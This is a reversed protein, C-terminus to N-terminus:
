WNGDGYDEDPHLLSDIVVLVALILLYPVLFLWGLFDRVPTSRRGSQM